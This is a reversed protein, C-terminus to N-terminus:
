VWHAGTIRSSHRTDFRFFACETEHHLVIAALVMAPCRGAGIAAVKQFVGAVPEVLALKAFGLLTAEAARDVAVGPWLALFDAGDHARDYAGIEGRREMNM